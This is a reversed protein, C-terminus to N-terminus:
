KLLAKVNEIINGKFVFSGAVLTDAGAEVATKYTTGNIGGDVEIRYSLQMAERQNVLWKVKPMMDEMFSQGGFGPEVTMILVMDCSSLVPQIIKVDTKPKVVVGAMAGLKHIEDLLSQVKEMDNDLAEVHFTVMNAGADIFIPAYKAPDSVMLHVDMVLDSLKCFGKLIDPGFTLNPVFHGDMVDFHLWKAPSANLQAVQEPMKSYDMSLVSPSIIRSNEM